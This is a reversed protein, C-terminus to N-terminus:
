EDIYALGSIKDESLRALQLRRDLNKQYDLSFVCGYLVDLLYKISQSTAFESIKTNLMERSAIKLTVDAYENLHNNGVNTMAIISIEHEKLIKAINLIQKNEGSYSVLIACADKEILHSKLIDYIDHIYVHRHILSMKEQFEQALMQYCDRVFIHIDKCNRLIKMTQYLTDHELLQMTEHITEMELRGINQAINTFSDQITFPISADVEYTKYLYEMEKVFAEKFEQFGSYGLKKAVRTVLPASTHTQNAITHSSINKLNEGADLIYKVILAESFSFHTKEIKHIILM